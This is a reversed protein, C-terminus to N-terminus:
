PKEAQQKLSNHFHPQAPRKSSLTSKLNPFITTMKRCNKIPKCNEDRPPPLISKLGSKIATQSSTPTNGLQVISPLFALAVAVVGALTVAVRAGSCAIAAGRGKGLVM